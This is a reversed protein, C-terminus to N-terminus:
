NVADNVVRSLRHVGKTRICLGDALQDPQASRENSFTEPLDPNAIYPRGFAISDVVFDGRVCFTGNIIQVMLSRSHGAFIVRQSLRHASRHLSARKPLPVLLERSSWRDPFM